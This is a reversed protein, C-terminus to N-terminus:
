EKSKDYSSEQKFEYVCIREFCTITKFLGPLSPVNYWGKGSIWWVTCINREKERFSIEILVDAFTSRNPRSLDREKVIIVKGQVDNYLRAWPYFSEHLIMLGNCSESLWEIARMASRVDEIPITSQVMSTQIYMKYPNYDAFYPFAYEPDAILYWAGSFVIASLYAAIIIKIAKSSSRTFVRHSGDVFAILVPYVMFIAWRFWFRPAVEPYIMPWISLLLMSALWCFVLRNRLKVLGYLVFPALPGYSYAIFGIIHRALLTRDESFSELPIKLVKTALDFLMFGLFAFLLILSLAAVPLKECRILSGIITEVLLIILLTVAVIEHSFAALLSFVPTLILGLRRKSSWYCTLA